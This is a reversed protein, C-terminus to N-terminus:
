LVGLETLDNKLSEVNKFLIPTYGIEKSYKLSNESDDIFILESKKINLKECFIEFIRKDPKMYGLDESILINDFFAILGLDTIEKNIRSANNSIIGTMYGKERLIKIIGIVENNVKNNYGKEILELVDNEKETKKLIVLIKKWMDVYSEGGINMLYNNEFYIKKITAIDIDLISSLVSYFGSIPEGVIVGGYDFGIAKYKM